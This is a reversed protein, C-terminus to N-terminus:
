EKKKIRRKGQSQEFGDKFDSGSKNFWALGVAIPIGVLLALGWQASEEMSGNHRLGNFGEIELLKLYDKPVKQAGKFIPM